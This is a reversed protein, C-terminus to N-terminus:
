FINWALYRLELEKPQFFIKKLIKSCVYLSFWYGAQASGIRVGPSKNSCVQNVGV